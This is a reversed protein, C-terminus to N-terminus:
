KVKAKARVLGYASFAFIVAFWVACNGAFRDFKWGSMISIGPAQQYFWIPFGKLLILGVTAEERHDVSVTMLSTVYSIMPAVIASGVFAVTLRYATLSM